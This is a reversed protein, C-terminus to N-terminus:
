GPAMEIVDVDGLDLLEPTTSSLVDLLMSALRCSSGRGDLLFVPSNKDLIYRLNAVVRLWTIGVSVVPDVLVERELALFLSREVVTEFLVLWSALRAGTTATRVSRIRVLGLVVVLVVCLVGLSRARCSSEDSKDFATEPPVKGSDSVLVPM